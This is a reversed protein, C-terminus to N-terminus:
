VDPTAMLLEDAEAYRFGLRDAFARDAATSGVFICQAPDLQHKAILAAGLGPLPRRCWSVPPGPGHPCYSPEIEVGLLENTRRHCRDVLAASLSGDAIEPQWSLGLLLFGEAALRRLADGRGPVVEVDEPSVPSRAGSRSRRLVGDYEVILARRKNAQRDQRRFSQVDIRSFGEGLVPPELTRRHEFLVRPPLMSPDTRGLEKIEEPTPLHGCRDIMRQVVNAQADELSTDVWVCRAPVGHSWATEVVENRSARTSYTNDLVFRNRRDSLAADLKKTVSSLTGGLLDRNLREYSQEVLTAAHTSKGAGPYGMILVVDGAASDRPRRHARPTRMIRTVPYRADIVRLQADDLDLRQGAASSRASEPRTAGPIPVLGPSLSRLWALAVESATAGSAEAVEVLVPDRLVQASRRPGGLPSHAILVLGHERCYEAVGNRLAETRKPSLEVQVAAIDALARAEEVQAVTVNCLGIQAARGDDQLRALARVSTAFPTRPDPAHLQYLDVREVGLACMSAECARELHKARGDPLWRRGSRRLGGKTAVLVSSRDGTWTSLAQAVLHENHGIDTDDVGYVDATDLLTVGADLAAHLVAIGDQEAREPSTSLRMCGLGIRGEVPGMPVDM